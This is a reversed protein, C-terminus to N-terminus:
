KKRKVSAKGKPAPKAPPKAKSKSTSKVAPAASAPAPEPEEAPAPENQYIWRYLEANRLIIQIYDRTQAFPVTEVFESPERFDAWGHWVPVRSPGANYGALTDEVSGNRADLQKRLYYTGLRLNIDPKKLTASTVGRIGVRRGLERGTGPLIQMLGIANAYSVVQHNFESEQRILAAVLYPDLSHQRCYAEIRARYPFPFALKWFRMPAGDRHLWLYNPVSGKVYRLAVDPAGRRNASEAMEMVLPFLKGGNRAGYRLEGEAWVDLGARSLLRAREIRQNTNEDPLVDARRQRVPWAISQLFADTAPSAGARAVEPRGLRPGLLTTYYYNPYRTRLESWFRKAAAFDGAQEAVRGLYYLSAGAKDSNPYRTLHTRLSEVTAAPRALYTPWLAKWHCSANDETQPFFDACAQFLPMFRISENRVIFNNAAQILAKQRWLSNPAKTALQEVAELMDDDRDLRRYCQVLWYLREAEAEQNTIQLNRLHSIAAETKRVQYDAAGIRVRAQDRPLGSLRQAMDEYEDKARAAQRNDFLKGARDLRLQPTPQPYREGLERELRVLATRADGAEDSLPYAFYVTQYYSAAGVSNGAGEEAQAALLAAQPQPLQEVAVRTLTKLAAQWASREVQSRAALVAARGALPSPLASKWVPELLGPVAEFSKQQARAQGLWFAVYDALVPLRPQVAQLHHAATELQGKDLADVGAKLRVLVDESVPAVATQAAACVLVM